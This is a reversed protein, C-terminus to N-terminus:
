SVVEELVPHTSEYTGENEDYQYVMHHESGVLKRYYEKIDCNHNEFVPPYDGNLLNDKRMRDCWQDYEQQMLDRAEQASGVETDVIVYRDDQAFFAMREDTYIKARIKVEFRTGDEQSIGWGSIDGSTLSIRFTCIMESHEDTQVFFTVKDESIPNGKGKYPRPRPNQRRERNHKSM